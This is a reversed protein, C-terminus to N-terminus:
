VEIAVGTVIVASARALKATVVSGRGLVGVLAGISAAGEVGFAVIRSRGRIKRSIKINMMLTIFNPYVNIM